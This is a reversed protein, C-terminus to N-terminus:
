TRPLMEELLDAVVQAGNTQPRTPPPPQSLLEDLHPAWRGAFLDDHDIFQCRLFAPMAAVLVDYERFRGRSTYLMATENALCESIIGYGPKTVVVDVARVLDEYRYGARYLAQEDIMGPLLVHYGPLHALAETNLGDLGYGGFSLLVARAELPIGLTRRVDQPNRNSRRAVFPVDRVAPMTAFGGWMPLRFAATARSYLEGIRRAVADGGEYYEYIWDWTFNGFAITPVGVAAGAAIGLAPLDAVVLAAGRDRLLAAEGALRQDFTSMFAEAREITAVPDLRLSDLQVAGTDVEAPMLEVGHRVTRQVLWPAVSSRLIIQLDPRRDILANIVEIVRSAHGFGHGSV